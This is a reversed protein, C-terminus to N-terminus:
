ARAEPELTSGAPARCELLRELSLMMLLVAGALIAVEGRPVHFLAWAVGAVAVLPRVLTLPGFVVVSSLSRVDVSPVARVAFALGIVGAYPLYVQLLREGAERYDDLVREPSSSLAVLLWGLAAAVAVALQGWLLGRGMARLYYRRKFLLANRGAAARYGCFAADCCALLYLLLPTLAM